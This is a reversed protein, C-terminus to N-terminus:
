RLIGNIVARCSAANAVRVPSLLSIDRVCIPTLNRITVVTRVTIVSVLERFYNCSYLDLDTNKIYLYERFESFEIWM